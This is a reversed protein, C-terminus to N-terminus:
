PNVKRTLSSLLSNKKVQIDENCIKLKKEAQESMWYFLYTASYVAVVIISTLIIVHYSVLYLKKSYALVCFMIGLSAVFIRSLLHLRSYYLSYKMKDILISKSKENLQSIKQQYSKLDDSRKTYRGLLVGTLLSIVGIGVLEEM